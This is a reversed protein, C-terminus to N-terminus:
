FRGDAQYRYRCNGLRWWTGVDNSSFTLSLLRTRIRPSIFTSASTLPYPGYVYPTQGPYDVGNFSVSVNAAKAGAYYGWKMDIWFQDVFVKNDGEALSFYGTTFTPTIAQGDADPSIEHQYIYPDASTLIPPGLM